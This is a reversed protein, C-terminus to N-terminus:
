RPSGTRVLRAPAGAPEALRSSPAGALDRLDIWYDVASDGEVRIMPSAEFALARLDRLERELERYQFRLADLEGPSLSQTQVGVEPRPRHRSWLFGSVLSLFVVAAVVLPTAWSRVGVPETTAVWWRLPPARRLRARVTSAFDASAATRPLDRLLRELQETERTEEKVEIPDKPM